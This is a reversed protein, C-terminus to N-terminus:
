FIEYFRIITALFHFCVNKTCLLRYVLTPNYKCMDGVLLIANAGKLNM